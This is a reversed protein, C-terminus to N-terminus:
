GLHIKKGDPLTWYWDRKQRASCDFTVKLGASRADIVRTPIWKVGHRAEETDGQDLGDGEPIYPM